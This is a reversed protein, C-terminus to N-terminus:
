ADLCAAARDIWCGDTPEADGTPVRLGILTSLPDTRGARWAALAGLGACRLASATAPMAGPAPADPLECALLAEHVVPSLLEVVRGRAERAVARRVECRFPLAGALVLAREVSEPPGCALLREAPGRPAPLDAPLDFAGCLRERIRRSLRPSACIAAQTEADVPCEAVASILDLAAPAALLRDLATPEISPSM